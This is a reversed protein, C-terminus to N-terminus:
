KYLGVIPVTARVRDPIKIAIPTTNNEQSCFFIANQRVIKAIPRTKTQNQCKKHMTNDVKNCIVVANALFSWKNNVDM